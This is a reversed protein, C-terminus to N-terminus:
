KDVRRFAVNEDGRRRRHSSPKFTRVESVIREDTIASVSFVMMQAQAGTIEPWSTIDM